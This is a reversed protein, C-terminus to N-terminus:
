IRMEERERERYRARRRTRAKKPVFRLKQNRSRPARVEERVPSILNLVKEPTGDGNTIEQASLVCYSHAAFLGKQPGKSEDARKSGVTLLFKEKLSQTIVGWVRDSEEPRIEHYRGPAGTLDRVTEITFGREIYQYCGYVKAYVKELIMVWLKNQVAQSFYFQKKSDPGTACPFYDDVDILQWEGAECIWAGYLAHENVKKSEFLRVIFKERPASAYIYILILTHSFYGLYPKM